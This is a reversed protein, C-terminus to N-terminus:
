ILEWWTEEERSERRGGDLYNGKLKIIYAHMCMGLVIHLVNGQVIHTFRLWDALPRSLVPRVKKSWRSSM